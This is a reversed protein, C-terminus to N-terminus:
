MLGDQRVSTCGLELVKKNILLYAGLAGLEFRSGLMYESKKWSM